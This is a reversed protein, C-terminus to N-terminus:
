GVERSSLEQDYEIRTIEGDLYMQKLETETYISLNVTSDVNEIDVETSNTSDAAVSKQIVTGDSKPQNGRKANAAVGEESLSLTDGQASIFTDLPERQQVAMEEKSTEQQKESVHNQFNTVTTASQSVENVEFSM